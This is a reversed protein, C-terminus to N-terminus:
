KGRHSKIFDIELNLSAGNIVELNAFPWQELNKRQLSQQLIGEFYKKGLHNNQFYDNLNKEMEPHQYVKAWNISNFLRYRKKIDRSKMLRKILYHDIKSRLGWVPFKILDPYSQPILPAQSTPVAFLKKLEKSEGFLKKIFRLNLRLNPHINSALRLIQISMSPCYSKFNQNCILIQKAVQMRNHTYWSFLEDVLEIYPLKHQEIRLFIENLDSHLAAIVDERKYNFDFQSLRGPTYWRELHQIKSNKWDDFTKENNKEFDYDGKLIYYKLFNEERFKKSSFKEITRGTLATTLDGLLFPTEPDPNINELIELWSCLYVAETKLTYNKLVDVVPFYLNPQSFSHFKAKKIEALRAAMKTEYNKEGGFTYSTVEKEEPIGGLVIRSDIGGSLAINVKKTTNLCYSMEKKFAAWFDKHLHHKQSSTSIEQYLTNDFKKSLIEANKNFRLQEGPLLRKCNKLITRSGINSFEPGICRQIVGADDFEAGSIIGMLIISNSIYINNERKLYYLPYVGILDNCIIIENSLKDILLTSFSGTINEPLPWSSAINKVVSEAQDETERIGKDLDRMYGETISFHSSTTKLEFLNDLLLSYPGIEKTDLNFPVKSIYKRDIIFNTLLFKM